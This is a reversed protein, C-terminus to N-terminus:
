VMLALRVSPVAMALVVVKWFLLLVARRVRPPLIVPPVPPVAAALVTIKVPVPFVVAPPMIEM